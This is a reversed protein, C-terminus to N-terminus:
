INIKLGQERWMSQERKIAALEYKLEINERELFAARIAIEDEKIRRRDRSKKAAANNKKRREYYASDRSVTGKGTLRESSSSDSQQADIQQQVSQQPESDDRDQELRQTNDDTNNTANEVFSRSSVRRMKPNCITPHGGNAAHMQSLMQQRFVNYKGDSAPISFPDGPYAKFPRPFKRDRGLIIPYSNNPLILPSATIAAPINLATITNPDSPQHPDVPKSQALKQQLAHLFPNLDSPTPGSAAVAYEPMHNINTISGTPSPSDRKGQYQFFADNSQRFQPIYLSNQYHHTPTNARGLRNLANGITSSITATSPSDNPISPSTSGFNSSSYPSPTKRTEVSDRRRSLDIPNSSSCEDFSSSDM